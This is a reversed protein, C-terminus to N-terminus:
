FDLHKGCHGIVIQKEDALWEFHVRLTEAASDKVGIKLHKFMEIDRGRYNFTRRAKGADSLVGSEKAAFANHGFVNKAQADGQGSALADWYGNTLNWLLDFAKKGFRFGGSERAADYASELVVVRDPFLTSIIVLSQELSPENAVLASVAERLPALASLEDENIPSISQRGSLAYKLGDIDARLSRVESDREELDSRLSTVEQDKNRLERDAEELLAVYVASEDSQKALHISRVLQQRLIAQSVVEPSIHRWSYPLNTRHTVAALVESEINRGDEMLESLDSPRYLVSECFTGNKGPRAQFLINIAGGWASYRRGLIDEIKYTDAGRGVEVVDAVGVLLSRLREPTVPYTGDRAPSVVVIPSRREEREVEILFAAASEEDLRKVRLGPTSSSPNCAESLELVLLPRTVQIPTTVRASVEDTKLLFTCDIPAGLADQRLGIETVWRRGSVQDDAHSLQACFLFPHTPNRDEDVTVRSHIHYGGAAQLDRIGEALRKPDVFSRCRKGLWGAIREVIEQAGGKPELTLYSSYVLM